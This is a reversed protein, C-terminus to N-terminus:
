QSSVTITASGSVGKSTATVTDPSAGATYYIIAQGKGGATNVTLTTYPTTDSYNPKMFGAQCILYVPTDNPAWMGGSDRVTIIIVTSASPALGPVAPHVSVQWGTGTRGGGSTVSDAESHCSILGLILVMLFGYINFAYHKILYKDPDGKVM